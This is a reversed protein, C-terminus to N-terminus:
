KPVDTVTACGLLIELSAMADATVADCTSKCLTIRTPSVPNDYYWGSANACAGENVVQPLTSKMGGGPTYNVNILAPDVVQDAKPTPMAFDCDLVQGRIAGLADLLDQKTSVGDAVFIGKTTGGAMAIQDLDAEQSGTLGIAYTRTGDAALADSALMAIKGIDQECGNAQGDTVLVVVSNQDPTAKHQAAAWRLAGDLAPYIPTGQGAMGPASDATATVLADEQKDIPAAEATLPGLPVLPMGCAAADCFPMTKDKTEQNCGPAPKDHPFFRLALSLGAADSSKFFDTLAASTLSWRTDPGGNVKQTMSSSRDFMVFLNVGSLTANASGTACADGPNIVVGSGSSGNSSGGSSNSGGTNISIKGATSTATSGANGNGGDVTSGDAGGCGTPVLGLLLAAAVPGLITRM